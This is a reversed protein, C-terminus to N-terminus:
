HCQRRMGLRHGKPTPVGQASRMQLVVQSTDSATIFESVGARLDTHLMPTALICSLLERKVAHVLGASFKPSTIFKWTNELLSMAPRRFQLVHVWRGAIIQVLKKSLQPRGLVFLTSHILKLFREPSGGLTGASGDVWAGLEQAEAVAHQRKKASSVVHAEKWAEEALEHLQTGGVLTENSGVVQGSAFNDLYVRWWSRNNQKAEKLLGTMWVPVPRHRVIQHNLDIHKEHLIRESVEQMIAVSSIWGMPLVRCALAFSLHKERGIRDGGVVVNFALYPCWQDPIRFLYFANSMDSQWVRLEEGEDLVTSMWTTIMRLNRVAGKFQLLISNSPVRNMIVRLVPRGDEIVASKKM